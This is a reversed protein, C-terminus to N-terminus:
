GGIVDPWEEGVDVEPGGRIRGRLALVEDRFYMVQPGGPSEVRVARLEGQAALERLRWVAVGLLRVAEEEPILDEQGANM